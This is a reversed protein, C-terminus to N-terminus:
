RPVDTWGSVSLGMEVGQVLFALLHLWIFSFLLLLLVPAFLLREEHVPRGLGTASESREM